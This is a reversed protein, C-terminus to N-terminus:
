VGDLPVAYVGVIGASVIGTASEVFSKLRDDDPKAFGAIEVLFVPRAAHADSSALGVVAVIDFDANALGDTLRGRSTSEDCEVL